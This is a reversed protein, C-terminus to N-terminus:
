RLWAQVMSLNSRLDASPDSDAPEHEISIPGVYGVQQLARVCAEIPVVGAGFRCTDHAGVALVDKLHVHVLADALEHVAAVPDYGHTAFWGTDLTAGITDRADDGIRGLLQQPNKEPHNEVGLACGHERLTDIVFARDSGLLPTDGGLIRIGLAAALRCSRRFSERDDGFGGALSVVELRHEALLDRAIGVHDDTAWDPHLHALWLDIAEFGLARVEALLAGLREAYTEFPGFFANTAADGQSWGETMRYGLQRAVYNASMCSITNVM